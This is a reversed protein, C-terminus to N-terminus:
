ALSSLTGLVKVVSGNGQGHFPCTPDKFCFYDADIQLSSKIQSWTRSRCATRSLQMSSLVISVRAFTLSVGAFSVKKHGLAARLFGWDQILEITGIHKMIGVPTTNNACAAYFNTMAAQYEPQDYEVQSSPRFYLQAPQFISPWSYKGRFDFDQLGAFPAGWSLNLANAWAQSVADLGPGGTDPMLVLGFSDTAPRSMAFPIIIKNTAVDFAQSYDLPVDM